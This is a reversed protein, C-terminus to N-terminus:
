LTLNGLNTSVEEMMRDSHRIIGTFRGTGGPLLGDFEVAYAEESDEWGTRLNWGADLAALESPDVEQIIEGLWPWKASMMAPSLAVMRRTFWPHRHGVEVANHDASGHTFKGYGCSIFEIQRLYTRRARNAKSFISGFDSLNIGPSIQDIIEMWSGPRPKSTLTYRVNAIAPNHVHGANILQQAITNNQGATIQNQLHHVQAAIHTTMPVNPHPQLAQHQLHPMLIHLPVPVHQGNPNLMLQQVALQLTAIHNQQLGGPNTQLQQLQFHLANLYMQLLQQHPPVFQAFHGGVLGGPAAIGVQAPAHQPAAAPVHVFNVPVHPANHHPMVMLSVSDLVLEKLPYLDHIQVFQLLAQPTIWCNKLRLTEVSFLPILWSRMRAADVRFLAAPTLSFRRDMLEELNIFPAPCIHKNRAHLGEAHEGGTTWGLTLRRINPRPAIQKRLLTYFAIASEVPNVPATAVFGAEDKHVTRWGPIVMLTVDWLSPLADWFDTRNLMPLYRDSLGSINLSHVAYFTPRNDIISLMYSSMFARQAWETELLWEQQAKTLNAPIVPNVLQGADPPPTTSTFLVGTGLSSPASIFRELIYPDELSTPVAIDAVDHPTAEHILQPDLYPMEPEVDVLMDAEKLESLTCHGNIKYLMAHRIDSDAKQHYSQIHRWLEQQAQARRDPTAKTTGFVSLPKCLIRARISKDPGNLWGLGSDVSLALEKVKTLESFATKMRPTEDATTELGAVADFRRYEEFPWDYRGWFSTKNETLVKVPPAALSDESVEFSMGYKRIHRGFGRFVDLGHGNYVEDGNANKWSYNPQGIRAPKKGKLDPEVEKGIMGYIETNFPVVVTQFIVQSVNRNLERSVLRLAKIDDRNLYEAILEVLEVPLKWESRGVPANASLHGTEPQPSRAPPTSESARASQRKSDSANRKSPDLLYYKAPLKDSSRCHPWIDNAQPDPSESNHVMVAVAGYNHLTQAIDKDDANESKQRSRKSPGVGAHHSPDLIRQLTTDDVPDRRRRRAHQSTSSAQEPGNRTDSSSRSRRRRATGHPPNSQMTWDLDYEFPDALIDDQDAPRSLTNSPRRPSVPAEDRNQRGQSSSLTAHPRHGAPLAEAPTAQPDARPPAFYTHTYHSPSHAPPATTLPSLPSTSPSASPSTPNAFLSAPQRTSSSSAETNAQDRPTSEQPAPLRPWVGNLAPANGLPSNNNAM